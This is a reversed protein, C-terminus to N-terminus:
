TVAETLAACLDADPCLTIAADLLAFMGSMRPERICSHGDRMQALIARLAICRDTVDDVLDTADHEAYADDPPMTAGCPPCENQACWSEVCETKLRDEGCSLCHGDPPTWAAPRAPEAPDAIIRWRLRDSPPLTSAARGHGMGHTPLWEGNRARYPEPAPGDLHVVLLTCGERPPPPPWPQWARNNLEVIDGRLSEAVARTAHLERLLAVVDPYGFGGGDHAYALLEDVPAPTALPDVDQMALHHVQRMWRARVATTEAPEGDISVDPRLTDAFEPPPPAVRKAPRRTPTPALKQLERRVSACGSEVARGQWGLGSVRENGSHCYMVEVSNGSHVVSLRGIGYGGWRYSVRAGVARAEDETESEVQRAVTLFDRRTWNPM